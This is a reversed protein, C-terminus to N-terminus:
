KLKTPVGTIRSSDGVGCDKPSPVSNLGPWTAPDAVAFSWGAPPMTTGAVGVGLEALPQAAESKAPNMGPLMARIWRPVHVKAWFTAFASAAPAERRDDEVLAVRSAGAQEVAAQRRRPCRLTGVIGTEERGVGHAGLQQALVLGPEGRHQGDVDLGDVVRVAGVPVDDGVGLAAVRVVDEDDVGVQVGDVAGPHEVVGRARGRDEVDGLLQLVGVGAVLQAEDPEAALLEAQEARVVVDVGEGGVLEGLDLEVEVGVHRGRRVVDRADEVRLVPDVQEAARGAVGIGGLM